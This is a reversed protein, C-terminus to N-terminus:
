GSFSNKEAFDSQKGVKGYIYNKPKKAHKLVIMNEVDWRQSNIKNIVKIKKDPM